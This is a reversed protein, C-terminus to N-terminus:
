RRGGCLLTHMKSNRWKFAESSPIRTSATNHRRVFTKSHRSRETTSSSETLDWDNWSQAQENGQFLPKRPDIKVNFKRLTHFVEEVLISLDAFSKTYVLVNDTWIVVCTCLLDEFVEMMGGQFADASEISGQIWTTPTFLKPKTWFCYVERSEESWRFQWFGKFAHLGAFRAAKGPTPSESWCNSSIM